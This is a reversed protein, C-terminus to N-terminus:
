LKDSWILGNRAYDWRGRAGLGADRSKRLMGRQQRPVRGTAVATTITMESYESQSGQGPKADGM